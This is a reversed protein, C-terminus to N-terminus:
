KGHTILSFIGAAAEVQASRYGTVITVTALGHHALAALHRSLLTKGGFELLCKPRDDVVGRLRRSEGAALLVAHVRTETM